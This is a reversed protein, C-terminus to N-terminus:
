LAALPLIGRGLLHMAKYILIMHFYKLNFNNYIEYKLIQYHVSLTCENFAIKLLLTMALLNPLCHVCKRFHSSQIQIELYQESLYESFNRKTDGNVNVNKFSYVFDLKIWSHIRNVQNLM